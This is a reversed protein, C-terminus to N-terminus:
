RRLWWSLTGQPGSGCVERSPVRLRLESPHPPLWGLLSPTLKTPLSHLLWCLQPAFFSLFCSFGPLATLYQHSSAIKSWVYQTHPRAPMLAAMLYSSPCRLTTCFLLRRLWPCVSLFFFNPISPFLSKLTGQVELHHLWGMRFSILGSQHQLQFELVKAVQHSSSIWQFLGQHQSLDFAPSSPSSLPHSTQIVDGVPHVQTQTLELLQHHVPFGPTGRDMPNCLDPCSQSVSSVSQPMRM